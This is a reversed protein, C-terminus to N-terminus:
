VDESRKLKNRKANAKKRRNEKKCPDCMTIHSPTNYLSFTLCVTCVKNKMRRDTLMEWLVDAQCVHGEQGFMDKLGTHKDLIDWFAPNEEMYIIWLKRYLAVCDGQNKAKKGKAQEWSLGSVEIPNGEDDFSDFIKFGQYLEEISKNNYKRIRAYFASFVKM